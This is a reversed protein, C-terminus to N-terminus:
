SSTLPVNESGGRAHFAQAYEKMRADLLFPGFPLLAAIFVLAGRAMPWRAVVMTWLLVAVLAVFLVGHAWGAVKVAMPMGALYKLPMAIFLLILFSSGEVLALSRLLPIPNAKHM